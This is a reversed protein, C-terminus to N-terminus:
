GQNACEDSTDATASHDEILGCRWASLDPSRDFAQAGERDFIGARNAHVSEPTLAPDYVGRTTAIYQHLTVGAATDLIRGNVDCDQSALWAVVPSTLEPRMHREWWQKSSLSMSEVVPRNDKTDEGKFFDTMLRTLATVGLANARIGLEEGELALARALGTVGTKAVVYHAMGPVGSMAVQSTIFVFRGYRQNVMHPWASKALLFGGDLHVRMMARYQEYTLEGFPAFTAIAANHVIADIRGFHDIATQVMALPGDLSGCDDRNAIARGGGKLIEDVVEQAPDEAAADGDIAVGLDNVVVSAGRSALLLCHERGM